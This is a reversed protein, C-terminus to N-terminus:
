PHMTLLCCIKTDINETIVIRTDEAGQIHFFVHWTHGLSSVAHLSPPTIYCFESSLYDHQPLVFGSTRQVATGSHLLIDHAYHCLSLSHFMKTNCMDSVLHAFIRFVDRHFPSIM